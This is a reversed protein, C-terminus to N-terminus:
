LGAAKTAFAAFRGSKTVYLLCVDNSECTLGVADKSSLLSGPSLTSAAETGRHAAVGQIVVARFRQGFGDFTVTTRGQLKVLVGGARHGLADGWLLAVRPPADGSPGWGLKAAEAWVLNSAEVNVPHEGSAFADTPPRVLYPGEDIEIFAVTDGKASTIHAGGRPQTWYSGVRMWRPEANADANHVLGRMVVGRYSVNHIHPPSSFGDVFRVLFGTAPKGNRNGWLTAAQPSADGRAPNLKEWKVQSATVIVPAPDWASRTLPATAEFVQTSGCSALFSATAGFAISWKM